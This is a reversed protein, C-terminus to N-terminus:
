SEPIQRASHPILFPSTPQCDRWHNLFDVTIAEAIEHQTPNKLLHSIKTLNSFAPAFITVLYAALNKWIPEAPTHASTSHQKIIAMAQIFSM